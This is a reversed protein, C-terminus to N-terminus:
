SPKDFSARASRRAYAVFDLVARVLREAEVRLDFPQAFDEASRAAALPPLLGARAKARAIDAVRILFGRWTDDVDIAALESLGARHPWVGARGAAVAPDVLLPIGREMAHELGVPLLTRAEVSPQDISPATAVHGAFVLQRSSRIRRSRAPMVQAVVAAARVELARGALRAPRLVAKGERAASAPETILRPRSRPMTEIAARRQRVAEGARATRESAAARHGGARDARRGGAADRAGNSAAAILARQAAELDDFGGLFGPLRPYRRQRRYGAEQPEPARLVKVELTEVGDAAFGLRQATGISVDLERRGLYPGANNVRVVAALRTRPNFLLLVTGDPLTPSAANDPEDARFVEGSSTLGCPNFRDVRCSSYHSAVLRFVTGVLRETEAITKVRHCVGRFCYTRGPEKAAAEMCWGFHAGLWAIAAAVLGTRRRWLRGAVM